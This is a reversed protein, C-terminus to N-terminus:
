RIEYTLTIRVTVTQTGPEIMPVSSVSDFSLSEIQAYFGPSNEYVAVIRGLGFGAAVAVAKAKEKAQEIAKSRAENELATDDDIIFSLQSISNVGQEVLGTMVSGIVAFDRIKVRASQNVKYGVIEPVQCSEDRLCYQNKYRPEIQFSQTKIDKTEVGIDKLFSIAANMKEVNTQQLASIDEGGETIVGFSFQAVDPISIVEGEGIVAFTRVALVGNGYSKVYSVVGGATVIALIVLAVGLFNRITHNM